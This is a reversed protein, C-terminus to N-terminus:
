SFSLMNLKEKGEKPKPDEGDSLVPALRDLTFVAEDVFLNVQAHRDSSASEPVPKTNPLDFGAPVGSELFTFFAALIGACEGDLDSSGALLTSAAAPGFLLPVGAGEEGM